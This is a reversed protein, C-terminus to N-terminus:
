IDDIWMKQAEEGDQRFKRDLEAWEPEIEDRIWELIDEATLDFEQREKEDSNFHAQVKGLVKNMLRLAMYFQENRHVKFQDARRLLGSLYAPVSDIGKEAERSPRDMGIMIKLQRIEQNHQKISRQIKDEMVPINDYTAGRTLYIGWRWVLLESILIRDLDQLDSVNSYSMETQYKTVRDNWWGEEEPWVYFIGGSPLKVTTFRDEPIEEEPIEM